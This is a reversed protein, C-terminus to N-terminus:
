ESMKPEVFFAETKIDYRLPGVGITTDICELSSMTIGLIRDHYVGSLSDWAVLPNAERWDDADLSELFEEAYSRSWSGGTRIERRSGDPTRQLAGIADDFVARILDLVRLHMHLCKATCYIATASMSGRFYELVFEFAVRDCFVEESFDVDE